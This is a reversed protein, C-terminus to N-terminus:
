VGNYSINHSLVSLTRNIFMITSESDKWQCSILGSEDTLTFLTGEWDSISMSVKLNHIKEKKLCKLLSHLLHLDEVSNNM